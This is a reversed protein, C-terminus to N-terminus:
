SVICSGNVIDLCCLAFSTEGHSSGDTKKSLLSVNLCSNPLVSGKTDNYFLKFTSTPGTRSQCAYFQGEAISGLLPGPDQTTIRPGLDPTGTSDCGLRLERRGDIFDSIVVGRIGDPLESKTSTSDMDFYFSAADGSNSLVLAKGCGGTDSLSVALGKISEALTSSSSSHAHAILQFNDCFDLHLQPVVLQPAAAAIPWLQLFLIARVLPVM